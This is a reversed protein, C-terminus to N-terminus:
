NHRGNSFNGLRRGSTKSRNSEALRKQLRDAHARTMHEYIELIEVM